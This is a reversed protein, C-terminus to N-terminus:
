FLPIISLVDRHIVIQKSIIRECKVGTGFAIHQEISIFGTKIIYRLWSMVKLSASLHSLGVM